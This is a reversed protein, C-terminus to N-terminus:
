HGGAWAARRPMRFPLLVQVWPQSFRQLSLSEHVTLAGDDADRLLSRCYFPGSELTALLRPQQLGRSSRAVGWGSGPMAGASRM